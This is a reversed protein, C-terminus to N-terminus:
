TFYRKEPRIPGLAPTNKNHRFLNAIEIPAKLGSLVERMAAASRTPSTHFYPEGPSRCPLEDAPLRMRVPTGLTQYPLSNEQCFHAFSSLRRAAPGVRVAAALRKCSGATGRPKIVAQKDPWGMVFAYITDGQATLRIQGDTFDGRGAESFRPGSAAVCALWELREWRHKTGHVYLYV